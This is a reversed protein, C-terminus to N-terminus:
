PERRYGYRSRALFPAAKRDIEGDTSHPHIGFDAGLGKDVVGVSINIACELLRDTAPPMGKDILAPSDARDGLLPPFFDGAGLHDLLHFLYGQLFRSSGQEDLVSVLGRDGQVIVASELRHFVTHDAISHYSGM